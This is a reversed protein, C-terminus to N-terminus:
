KSPKSVTNKAKRSTKGSLIIDKFNVFLNEKASLQYLYM